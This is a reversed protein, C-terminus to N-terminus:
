SCCCRMGIRAKLSFLDLWWIRSGAMLFFFLFFYENDGSNIMVTQSAQMSLQFQPVLADCCVVFSDVDM